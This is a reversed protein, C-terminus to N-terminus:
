GAILSADFDQLVAKVAATIIKASQTAGSVHKSAFDADVTASTTGVLGTILVHADSEAPYGEAFGNTLMSISVIEGAGGNEKVAIEFAYESPVFGSGPKSVITYVTNDGDVTKSVIITRHTSGSVEVNAIQLQAVKDIYSETGAVNDSKVIGNATSVVIKRNEDSGYVAATIDGHDGTATYLYTVTDDDSLISSITSSGVKSTLITSMNTLTYNAYDAGLLALVAEQAEAEPNSGVKLANMCYYAAMNVANNIATSTRTTGQVKNTGLSLDADVRVGIYWTSTCKSTINALLTEGAGEVISWGVITADATRVAVYITVTGGYGGLGSTKLIYNGETSKYVGDVTGYSSNSAYASDPTQSFTSDVTFSGVDSPWVKSLARNFQDEESVYLLDNCLALLLCCVLCIIVLVAVAKVSQLITAKKTSASVNTTNNDSM